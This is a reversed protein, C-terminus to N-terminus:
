LAIVKDVGQLLASSIVNEAGMINTKIAEGPNYELTPVQKLAAAHIVYNVNMFAEELRAKDRVDGLFYRMCPANFQRQMECQKFEDRSFIILRQPSYRELLTKVCQKGFSGTGGTILISKNNFM